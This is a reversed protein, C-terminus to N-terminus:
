SELNKALRPTEKEDIYRSEYRVGNFYGVGNRIDVVHFEYHGDGYDQIMLIQKQWNEQYEVPHGFDDVASHYGEVQGGTLCTAGLQMYRLQWGDRTTRAIQEFSHGHGRVIHSDPNEAAEKRM